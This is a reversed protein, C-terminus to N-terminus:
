AAKAERQVASNKYQEPLATRLFTVTRREEIEYPQKLYKEAMEKMFGAGVPEDYAPSLADFTDHVAYEIMYEDSKDKFRELHRYNLFPIFFWTVYRGGPIKRLGNTLKFAFPAYGKIFHYLKEPEMRKTIPRLAYKWRLMQMWNRAYSHVFFAGDDKVFQLIHELVAKPDPTHQIVRHCFVIDFSQPKFPLDLISAQVFASNEDDGLNAKAVDVGAIDVSVVRAGFSRLIETDPGAGCGCELVTKGQFFEPTWGTRDLMTDRRDTTGNRSDLQLTAHKERLASFNGTSYSMDPTFRLIGGRMPVERGEFQLVGGEDPLDQIDGRLYNKLDPLM